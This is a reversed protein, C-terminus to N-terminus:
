CFSSANQKLTGAVVWSPSASSGLGLLYLNFTQRLKSHVKGMASFSFPTMPPSQLLCWSGLCAGSHWCTGPPVCAKLRYARLRRMRNRHLVMVGVDGACIPIVPCICSGTSHQVAPM